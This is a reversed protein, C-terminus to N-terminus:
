EMRAKKAVPLPNAMSKPVGAAMKPRVRLVKALLQAPPPSSPQKPRISDIAQEQEPVNASSAARLALISVGCVLEAGCSPCVLRCADDMSDLRVGSM